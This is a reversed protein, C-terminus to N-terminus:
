GILARVDITTERTAVVLAMALAVIGDISALSKDKAFKRNGSADRTVIANRAMWNLIPNDGHRLKKTAIATGLVTVAASMDKFGQGVETLPLGSIGLKDIERQFDKIKWRDFALGKIPNVAHIEAVKHAIAEPDTAIGARYLLGDKEWVTYPVHEVESRTIIDGPLWFYPRVHFEATIPHRYVLVLATLDRTSGLDLGAYVQVGKPIEPAGDCAEWESRNIFKTEAAVRQNLILNRFANESEPMRQAQQAQREIDELSRFAGLAPNAADWAARSWPDMSEPAHYFALHFTKDELEGAQVREGYDILRSLPALDDAAQTSIVILLPNKRAGQASDMARYLEDDPSQGLEDYIVCSPSLGFKTKVERSLAAYISGTVLDEITKTHREIRCRPRLLKHRLILAVMENFIRAAQFRDNACSYVEGREEAEPGCLHALALAAALQTKGNKRAMSLVATRVPRHGKTDRYVARVFERQFELLKFKKGAFEGSSCTLDEIFRIVRASRLKLEEWPGRKGEIDHLERLRTKFHPTAYDLVAM